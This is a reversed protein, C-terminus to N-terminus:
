VERHDCPTFCQDLHQLYLFVSKSGNFFFTGLLALPLLGIGPLPSTGDHCTKLSPSVGHPHELLTLFWGSPQILHAKIKLDRGISASEIVRNEKGEKARPM